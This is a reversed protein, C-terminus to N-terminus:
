RHSLLYVYGYGLYDDIFPLFYFTGHRAKVNMLGCIDYHFAKLPSSATSAKGFPKATAKGALCSECRPLKVKTIQDLLGEKLLRSMRDQGVHGLRAHWKISELNPDFHSVFVFPSNNNYSDDLDVVLFDSKLTAHGFVNGGYLIDLGDSCFSFSFDSKMLSALSLLCIRVGPAYLAYFLLLKNGGRLLLQYMGVGLVDEESDNELVVFQSGVLYRHFNV